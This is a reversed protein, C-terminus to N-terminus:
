IRSGYYYNCRRTVVVTQLDDEFSDYDSKGTRPDYYGEFLSSGGFAYLKEGNEVTKNFIQIKDDHEPKCKALIENIKKIDTVRFYNTLIRGHKDIFWQWDEDTAMKKALRLAVRVKQNENIYGTLDPPAVSRAKGALDYIIQTDEYSLMLISVIKGLFELDIPSRRGSEIDSYYGFTVNVKEAMLRVTIGRENRKNKLFAGFKQRDNM